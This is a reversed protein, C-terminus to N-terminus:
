SDFPSAVGRVRADPNDSVEVAPRVVAEVLVDAEVGKGIFVHGAPLGHREIRAAFVRLAAVLQDTTTTDLKIAIMLKKM